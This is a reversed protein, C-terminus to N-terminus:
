KENDNSLEETISSPASSSYSGIFRELNAHGNAHALQAPRFGSSTCAQSDAGHTLLYRTTELRGAEAAWHLPTRQNWNREEVCSGHEVLLSVIDTHGGQAACHIAENGNELLRLHVDAKKHQLLWCVTETHGKDAAKHLASWGGGDQVDVGLGSSALTRSLRAGDGDAAANTVQKINAGLYRIIQALTLQESTNPQTFLLLDLFSTSHFYNQFCVAALVINCGCFTHGDRHSSHFSTRALLEERLLARSALLLLSTICSRCYLKLHQDAALISESIDTYGRIAALLLAHGFISTLRKADTTAEQENLFQSSGPLFFDYTKPVDQVGIFNTDKATRLLIEVIHKNDKVVAAVLPSRGGETPLLPNAGWALMLRVMIENGASCAAQFANGYRADRADPDAGKELLLRAVEEHGGSCAAQLANGYQGGRVNVDAGRDILLSVVKEHGAFCAAQLASGFNGGSQANVNARNDLLLAVM